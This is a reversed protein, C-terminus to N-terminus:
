EDFELTRQFYAKTVEPHIERLLRLAEGKSHAFVRVPGSHSLAFYEKVAGKFVKVKQNDKM